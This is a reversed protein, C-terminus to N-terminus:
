QWPDGFKNAQIVVSDSDAGIADDIRNIVRISDYDDGPDRV